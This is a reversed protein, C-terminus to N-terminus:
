INDINCVIIPAMRVRYKALNNILRRLFNASPHARFNWCIYGKRCSEGIERSACFCKTSQMRDAHFPNCREWVPRWSCFCNNVFQLRILFIQHRSLIRAYWCSMLDAFWIYGCALSLDSSTGTLDASLKAYFCPLMRLVAIKSSSRIPSTLQLV